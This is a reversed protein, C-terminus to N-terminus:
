LRPAAAAGVTRDSHVDSVPRAPRIEVHGSSHTGMVFGAEQIEGALAGHTFSKVFARRLSGDAAMWRTHTAGFAREQHNRRAILVLLLIGRAYASKTMRASLYVVGGPRLWRSMRSLLEVRSSRGPVFSYVDYTFVIADLSADPEEHERLDAAMFTVKSTRASAQRGAAEVMASSFDVGHVAYGAQELLFCESGAGSGAVLVRGAPPVTQRIRELLPYPRGEDRQAGYFPAQTEYKRRVSDGAEISADIGCRTAEHLDIRLRRWACGAKSFAHRRLDAVGLIDGAALTAHCAPDADAGLVVQGGELRQVRLLDMIGGPMALVVDGKVVSADKVPRVEVRGGHLIAPHMRDGLYTLTVRRGSELLRKVMFRSAPLSPDEFAVISLPAWFPFM